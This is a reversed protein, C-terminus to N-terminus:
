ATSQHHAVYRGRSAALDRRREGNVHYDIRLHVDHLICAGENADSLTIELSNVGKKVSEPNIGYEQWQDEFKSEWVGMTGRTLSRHTLVQNNLKVTLAEPRTLNEVRVNLYVQPNGAPDKEAMVDDAITLTTAHSEGAPLEVPHDPCLTPLSLFQEGGPLYYQLTPHGCGMVSVHYVKDLGALTHPDGIGRWLQHAPDRMYNLNFVYIGDVGANFANAAHARYAEDSRRINRAEEDVIRSGDLSAYVPVDYQCVLEVTKEWPQLWFYGGAVMIDILDEELWRPVDLGLAKAYGASDPVRVAILLPRGRKQGVEDTMTRVRRLYETMIDREAQGLAEGWVHKKFCLLQRFFDLEIGDIDYRECVDQIIRFAHDRVEPLAYDVGSWPGHPPRNENTGFLYEPHDKKFQSVAGPIWSDHEDNIRMSWFIEINHKHCFEVMIQLTDTGRDILGKIIGSPDYWIESVESNHTYYNFGQTTSYFISDVHSGPLGTTNIKM